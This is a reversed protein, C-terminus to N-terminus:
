PYVGPQSGRHNQFLAWPQWAGPSRHLSGLGLPHAQTRAGFSWLNRLAAKRRHVPLPFFSVGRRYACVRHVVPAYPCAGPTAAWPPCPHHGPDRDGAIRSTSWLGRDGHPCLSKPAREVGPRQPGQPLVGCFRIGSGHSRTCRHDCSGRRRAGAPPQSSRQVL